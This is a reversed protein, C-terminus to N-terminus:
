PYWFHTDCLINVGQSGSGFSWCFSKSATTHTHTHTDPLVRIWRPRTMGCSIGNARYLWQKYETSRTPNCKPWLNAANKIREDHPMPWCLNKMTAPENKLWIDQYRSKSESESDSDARRSTTAVHQWNQHRYAMFWLTELWIRLWLSFGVGFANTGSLSFQPFSKGMGRGGISAGEWTIFSKMSTATAATTTM